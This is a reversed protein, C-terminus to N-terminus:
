WVTLCVLNRCFMKQMKWQQDLTQNQLGSYFASYDAFLLAMNRQEGRPSLYGTYELKSHLFRGVPIDTSMDVPKQFVAHVYEAVRCDLANEWPVVPMNQPALM